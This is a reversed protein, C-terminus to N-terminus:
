FFKGNSRTKATICIDVSVVCSQFIRTQLYPTEFDYKWTIPLLRQVCLHIFKRNIKQLLGLSVVTNAYCTAHILLLLSM